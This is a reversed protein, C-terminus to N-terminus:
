KGLVATIKDNQAPTVFKIGITPTIKSYIGTKRKEKVKPRLHNIITLIKTRKICRPNNTINIFTIFICKFTLGTKIIIEMIM